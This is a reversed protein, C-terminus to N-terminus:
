DRPGLTESLRKVYIILLKMYKSGKTMQCKIFYIFLHVPLHVPLRVRRHRFYDSRIKAPLCILTESCRFRRRTSLGLGRSSRGRQLAGQLRSVDERERSRKWRPSHALTSSTSDHASSSIRCARKTGRRVTQVTYLNM